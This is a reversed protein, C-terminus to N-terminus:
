VAVVQWLDLKNISRNNRTVPGEPSTTITDVVSPETRSLPAQFSRCHIESEERHRNMREVLIPPQGQLLVAFSEQQGVFQAEGFGIDAFVDGVLGLVDGGADGKDRPERGRGLLDPEAGAGILMGFVWGAVTAAEIAISSWM